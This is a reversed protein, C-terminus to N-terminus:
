DFSLHSTKWSLFFLWFIGISIMSDALNFVPFDYHWLVFHFMDIVHGYVFFDFVNSLAGATVLVLPVQLSKKKNFFILYLLLSLILLTRLTLLPLPYDGLVGWAAGTNTMQNISFEIGLFNKFIGIGNYPYFYYHSNILPISEVTLKKIGQDLGIILLGLILLKWSIKTSFVPIQLM